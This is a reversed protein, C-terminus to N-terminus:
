GTLPVALKTRALRAMRCKDKEAKACVRRPWVSSAAPAMNAILTM